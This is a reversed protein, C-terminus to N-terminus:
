FLSVQQAFEDAWQHSPGARGLQLREFEQAAAHAQRAAAAQEASQLAHHHSSQSGTRYISDWDEQHQAPLSAPDINLSQM